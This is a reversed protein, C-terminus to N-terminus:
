VVRARSEVPTRVIGTSATQNAWEPNTMTCGSLRDEPEADCYLPKSLRCRRHGFQLRWCLRCCRCALCPSLMLSQSIEQQM